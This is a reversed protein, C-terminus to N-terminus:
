KNDLNLKKLKAYRLFIGHASNRCAVYGYYGDLFGLRLVYSKFFKFCPKILLHYANARKGKLYLQQAAISSFKNIQEIHQEISHFSYHLLNGKLQATSSNAQLEFKDHPNTGGWQGHRSDWLRLKRDPYWDSHRIWTGCYNNLRNIYYGTKNFNQKIQLISQTLQVSLCEDADLSLIHPYKAQTIAYNKQEIHGDFTHQVFRVQPYNQCIQATQDTSFSDVVVIDDAVALVSDLCRAINQQENYTIIVVSIPTLATTNQM